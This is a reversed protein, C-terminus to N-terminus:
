ENEHFVSRLRCIKYAISWVVAGVPWMIWTIGWRGTLFSGLLYVVVLVSWYVSKVADLKQKLSISSKKEASTRCDNGLLRSCAHSTSGGYIFLFVAAAVILLLIGTCLFYIWATGATTNYVCASIVLPLPSLICFIVAVTDSISKSVFNNEKMRKVFSRADSDLVILGTKYWGFERMKLDGAVFLVLAAAILVFMLSLGVAAATNRSMLLGAFFMHGDSLGSQMGVLIVLAAPSVVCLMSAFANFLSRNKDASIYRQAETTTISSTGSSEEHRGSSREIHLSDLIEDVNGFEAIVKGVAENENRGEAKLENYKDEMMALLERKARLVEDTQPLTAFMNEIYM